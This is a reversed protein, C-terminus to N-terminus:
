YPYGQVNLELFHIQPPTGLSTVYLTTREAGGFAVNTVGGTSPIVIHGIEEDGPSLVVVTKKEHVTVYINGSCDKGLGDIGADAALHETQLHTPSGTVSGDAGLQYRYLGNVGGIYLSQEDLSLMIGNPNEPAGSTALSKAAGDV